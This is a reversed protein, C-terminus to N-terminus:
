RLNERRKLEMAAYHVEDAYYGHNEGSPNIRAAEGADAIIFRLEAESKSRLGRQYAAHNMTKPM